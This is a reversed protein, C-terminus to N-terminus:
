APLPQMGNAILTQVGAADVSTGTYKAANAIVKAKEEAQKDAPKAEVEGWQRFLEWALERQRLAANVRAMQDATAPLQWTESIAEPLVLRYDHGGEAFVGPTPTLANLMDLFTMMFTTVPMWTTGKPAGFPRTANPGLWDPKRWVVQSGFKPIPDDGNQLLLYRVRAREKQPLAKWDMLSRPLYAAGPGVAPVETITREGWIQRRWITAAPTGIWLAADIGTGELGFLGTGRYMEESVQSGLSEGFIFFKPRKSKPMALLRQVIGAVVMSTQASGTPVRTLSLASPLVSYQIAASACDGHTLYEFTETAVYNVYGSGTPSFLACAKRELAKTRDIEALLVNVRDQDSQAIELSGYVRIPQKAGTSGMVAEISSPPLAMSLWRAGERTQKAWDLGSAPSGTVEPTSPPTALAADLAGGGKSLMTSAKSVAFWGVGLTIGASTMRGLMRHDHAEGGLLYTAARSSASTLASEVKALGFTALGVAAGIAIAKPPSVDRVDDEWFKAGKHATGGDFDDDLLSGPASKWPQTSAWSGIGVVAAAVLSAGRDRNGNAGPTLDSAASAIATTVATQALLRGVARQASEHERWALAVAAGAALAGVSGAVLLRATPTPAESKSFRSAIASITASGASIVGYAMAATTGTIVAQDTSGRTLLNPQYSRGVAYATGFLGARAAHDM